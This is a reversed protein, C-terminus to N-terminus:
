AAVTSATRGATTATQMPASGSYGQRPRLASAMWSVVCPRAASPACSRQGRPSERRPAWPLAGIRASHGIM